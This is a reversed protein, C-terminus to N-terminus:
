AARKLLSTVEAEAVRPKIAQQVRKNIYATKILVEAARGHKAMEILDDGGTVNALHEAALEKDVYAAVPPQGTKVKRRYEVIGDFFNGNNAATVSGTEDEAHWFEHTLTNALSERIGSETEVLDARIGRVKSCMHCDGAAHGMKEVSRVEVNDVESSGTWRKAKSIAERLLGRKKPDKENAIVQRLMMVM